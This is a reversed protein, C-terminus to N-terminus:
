IKECRRMDEKRMEKKGRYERRRKRSILWQKGL